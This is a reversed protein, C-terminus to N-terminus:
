HMVAAIRAWRSRRVKVVNITKRAVTIAIPLCRDPPGGIERCGPANASRSDNGLRAEVMHRMASARRIGGTAIGM